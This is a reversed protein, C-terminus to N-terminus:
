IVNEVGFSSLVYANFTNFFGVIIRPIKEYLGKLRGAAPTYMYAKLSINGGGPPQSGRRGQASGAGGGAKKEGAPVDSGLFEKLQRRAQFTM